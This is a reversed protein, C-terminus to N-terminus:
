PAAGIIQAQLLAWRQASSRQLTAFRAAAASSAAQFMEPAQMWAAVQALAAPVFAEDPPIVRGCEPTVVEPICGRGYAIVPLGHQMAEHIVLPEAENAYLTPFIMTDIGDFFANK